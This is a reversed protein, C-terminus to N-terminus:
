RNLTSPIATSPLLHTRWATETLTELPVADDLRFIGSRTRTLAQLYAGCGLKEGVDRALARIYTGAACAVRIKLSPYRYGLLEIERIMVRRPKLVIPKGRRAAEYAKMGGVKVASYAPPIQETEGVFRRLVRRVDNTIPIKTNSMATIKGEADDTSSIAGLHIAAVYEKEGTMFESQRKTADGILIILLGQANPDLTGAHGVRAGNVLARIRRVVDHSTPGPPKNVLLVGNM